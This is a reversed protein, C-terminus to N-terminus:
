TDCLPAGNSPVLSIPGGNAGSSGYTAVAYPKVTTAWRHKGDQSDAFCAGGCSSPQRHDLSHFMDTFPPPVSLFAENLTLHHRRQDRPPSGSTDGMPHFSYPKFVRLTLGAAQLHFNIPYYTLGQTPYPKLGTQGPM